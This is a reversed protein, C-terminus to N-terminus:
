AAHREGAVKQAEVWAEIDDLDFRVIRPSYRIQPLGRYRALDLVQRATLGMHAGAEEATLKRRPQSRREGAQKADLLTM